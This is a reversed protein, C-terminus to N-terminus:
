KLCTSTLKMQKEEVFDKIEETEEVFSIQDTLSLIATMISEKIDESNKEM